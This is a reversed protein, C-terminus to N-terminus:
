DDLPEVLVLTQNAVINELITQKGSPWRVTLRDVRQAEGLGWSLAEQSTSMYSGGGRRIRLMQRGGVTATAAAGIADRTSRTGVLRVQLWNSPTSLDNRLIALPANLNSFIADLDGDGDLDALALGRGEHPQTMYSGEAFIMRKFRREDALMALPLQARPSATPHIIVHGNNVLIDEQGDLDLDACVTGFGVFLGGLVNLGAIDSVHLFAGPGENRYLAFDEREYNTVWIDPRGSQDFDILDVGMSGNPVGTKDTAVGAITAIERFKAGGDNVYLFNATTDNAVYIDVLGNNDLDAVLVGLGKGDGRLNSEETADRFTGDQNSLYLTDRLGAFERPPCIDQEEASRGRCFPHNEFSWDVYHAVYLDLAGDNNFDGWGAASSWQQDDLGAQTHIEIFTGDGQNQWLHLGGFGTVLVDPFGDENFDAAFAGHNYFRAPFGGGALDAVAIMKNGDINRFLQGPYGVPVKDEFTGGGTGFLDPRGDRDFDLVAIGGGLSELIAYHGKDEGNRYSFDVGWVKTVDTLQLRSVNIQDGEVLEEHALSPAPELAAELKGQQSARPKCGAVTIILLIAFATVNALFISRKHFNRRLPSGVLSQYGVKPHLLITGDRCLSLDVGLGDHVLFGTRRSKGYNALAISSM